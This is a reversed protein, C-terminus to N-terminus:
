KLVEKARIQYVKRSATVFTHHTRKRVAKAVQSYSVLEQLDKDPMLSRLSRYAALLTTYHDQTEDPRVVTYIFRDIRPANSLILVKKGAM